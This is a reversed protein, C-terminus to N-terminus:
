RIFNTKIKKEGEPPNIGNEKGAQLCKLTWAFNKALIRLTQVGEEDKHIDEAKSGHIQNWYNSGVVLMNNITFYKMIRDFAASAGGRSCSVICAAPKYAFKAGASYFLRDMFATLYSTPAAYYVPSGVIIGDFEDARKATANVIDNILCEGIIRCSGCAVCERIGRNNLWLVESEIGNNKLEEAIISLRENTCGFKDPSGNVLLVKM